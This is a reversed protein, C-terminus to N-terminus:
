GGTLGECILLGESVHSHKWFRILLKTPRVLPGYPAASDLLEELNILEEQTAEFFFSPITTECSQINNSGLGGSEM